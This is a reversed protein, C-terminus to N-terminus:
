RTKGEVEIEETKGIKRRLKRRTDNEKAVVIKRHGKVMQRGRGQRGQEEQRNTEAGPGNTEM